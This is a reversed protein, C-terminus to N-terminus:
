LSNNLIFAIILPAAAAGATGDTIARGEPFAFEIAMFLNSPQLHNQALRRESM